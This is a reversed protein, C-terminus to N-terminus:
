KTKTFQALENELAHKWNDFDNVHVLQANANCYNCTECDKTTCFNKSKFFRETFFGAEKNDLSFMKSYVLPETSPATSFCRFLEWLNGDYSGQNYIDVVRQFDPKYMERGAVKFVSVGADVYHKLDEPRIWGSKLVEALNQMKFLSCRSVYFDAPQFKKGATAHSNFSYHFDRFPCDIMCTGNVITGFEVGLEKGQSALKELRGIKRNMFEPLMIREVNQYALFAKLRSFSDVNSIVSVSVKADPVAQKILMMMSPLVATFREVGISRLKQLFKTIEKKGKETFEMNSICNFNLTYNFSVGNKNCADVYKKLADFNIQRLVSSTRGSGFISPNLSGYVDKIPIDWKENRRGIQEITSSQFDAPISFSPL